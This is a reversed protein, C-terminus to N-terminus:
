LWRRSAMVGADCPLSRNSGRHLRGTQVAGIFVQKAVSNACAKGKTSYLRAVMQSSAQHFM